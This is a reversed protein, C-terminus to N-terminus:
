YYILIDTIGFILSLKTQIYYYINEINYIVYYIIYIFIYYM